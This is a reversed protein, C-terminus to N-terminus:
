WRKWTHSPLTIKPHNAVLNWGTGGCQPCRQVDVDERQVDPLMTKDQFAIARAISAREDKTLVIGYGFCSMCTKIGYRAM